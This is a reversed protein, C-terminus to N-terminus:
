PKKPETKESGSDMPANKEADRLVNPIFTESFGALFCFFMEVMTLGELTVKQGDATLGLIIKARIALLCAIAAIIAVITRTGRGM